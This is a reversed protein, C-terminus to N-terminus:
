PTRGLTPRKDRLALGIRALLLVSFAIAAVQVLAQHSTPLDPQFALWLMGLALVLVVFVLLSKAVRVSFSFALFPAAVFLFGVGAVYGAVPSAKIAGSAAIFVWIVGLLAFCAGVLFTFVRTLSRRKVEPM